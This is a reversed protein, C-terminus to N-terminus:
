GDKVHFHNYLPTTVKGRLVLWEDLSNDAGDVFAIRVGDARPIWAASELYRQSEFGSRSVSKSWVQRMDRWEFGDARLVQGLPLVGGDLTWDPEPRVVITVRDDGCLVPPCTDWCLPEMASQM